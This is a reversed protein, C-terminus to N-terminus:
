NRHTTLGKLRIILLKLCQIVSKKGIGSISLVLCTIFWGTFMGAVFWWM